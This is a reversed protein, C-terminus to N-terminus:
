PMPNEFSLVEWQIRSNEGHEGTWFRRKLMLYSLRHSVAPTMVWKPDKLSSSKLALIVWSRLAAHDKWFVSSNTLTTEYNSTSISWFDIHISTVWRSDIHDLTNHLQSENWIVQMTACKCQWEERTRGAGKDYGAGPRRSFSGTEQWGCQLFLKSSVLGCCGKWPQSDCIEATSGKMPSEFHQSWLPQPFGRWQKTRM